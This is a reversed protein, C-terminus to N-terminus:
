ASSPMRSSMLQRTPESIHILSLFVGTAVGVDIRALLECVRYIDFTGASMGGYEEEIFLLSVGLESLMRRVLHEPFEDNTDLEILYEDPMTDAGFDRITDLVLILTDKDLGTSM